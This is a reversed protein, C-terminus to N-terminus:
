HPRVLTTGKTIDPTSSAAAALGPGRRVPKPHYGTLSLGKRFMALWENCMHGTATLFEIAAMWEQPEAEKVAAHRHRIVVTM